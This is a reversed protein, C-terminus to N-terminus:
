LVAESENVDTKASSEGRAIARKALRRLKSTDLRFAAAERAFRESAHGKWSKLVTDYAVDANELALLVARASVCINESTNKM